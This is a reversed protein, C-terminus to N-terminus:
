QIIMAFYSEEGGATRLYQGVPSGEADYVVRDEPNEFYKEMEQASLLFLRDTTDNGSSVGTKPNAPNSVATELIFEQEEATFMVDMNPQFNLYDRVQSNEWTHVEDDAFMYLTDIYGDMILLAKENEDDVDLVQWKYPNGESDKGFASLNLVTSVLKEKDTQPQNDQPTEAVKGDNLAIFEDWTYNQLASEEFVQVTMVAVAKEETAFVLDFYGTGMDPDFYSAGWYGDPFSENKQNYLRTFHRGNDDLWQANRKSYDAKEDYTFYYIDIVEADGVPYFEVWEEHEFVSCIGTTARQRDNLVGSTEGEIKLATVASKDFIQLTGLQVNQPQPKDTEPSQAPVQADSVDVWMAPRVAYAGSYGYSGNYDIEGSSDQIIMAFYSEEGGATRLYQGVPSGEADYVVRDQPNEFYKEMEETSLLFLRDTTDNGSSVGTKPNAPNSVATKLIFEQERPTFMVDLNPQFNLYERVQSNEWTHVEDDAFMYMTDIYGDMILLAKSNETDVDLVLWKYPNERNDRGFGSLNIVQSVLKEKESQTLQGTQQTGGQQTQRIDPASNDGQSTEGSTSCATMSLVMAFTLLLALIKKM